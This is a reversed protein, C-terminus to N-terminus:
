TQCFDTYKLLEGKYQVQVNQKPEASINLPKALHRLLLNYLSTDKINALEKALRSLEKDTLQKGQMVQYAHELLLLYIHRDNNKSGHTLSSIPSYLRLYLMEDDQVIALLLLNLGTILQGSRRSIKQSLHMGEILNKKALSYNGQELALLGLANYIISQYIENQQQLAVVLASQYIQKAESTKGLHRLSIGKSVKLSLLQKYNDIPHQLACDFVDVSRETDGLRRMMIGVSSLLTILKDNAEKLEPYSLMLAATSEIQTLDNLTVSARLLNQLWRLQTQRDLVSIRDLHKTLIATSVSPKVPLYDEAKALEDLMAQKTLKAESHFAFFFALLIAILKM